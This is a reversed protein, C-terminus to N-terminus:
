PPSRLDRRRRPKQQRRRFVMHIYVKAIYIEVFIKVRLKIYDYLKIYNIEIYGLKICHLNETSTTTRSSTAQSWSTTFIM